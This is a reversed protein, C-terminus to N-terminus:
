LLFPQAFKGPFLAPGGPIDALVESVARLDDASLNALPVHLPDNADPIRYWPATGMAYPLYYRLNARRALRRLRRASIGLQEVPQFLDWTPVHWAWLRTFNLFSDTEDRYGPTRQGSHVSRACLVLTKQESRLRDILFDVADDGVAADATCAIAARDTEFLYCNWSTELSSPMEGAFPFATARVDGITMTEGHKLRTVKRRPGLVTQILTALDVEWRRDPRFDPVVIPVDEPLTMLVGLNCHDTDQHTIFVADLRPLQAPSLQPLQPGYPEFLLREGFSDSFCSKMEQETWRIHPRLFPDVCVSTRGTQLLVCAHGLWALRDAGGRSLGEPVIPASADAEEILQLDRLGRIAASLDVDGDGLRGSIEGESVGQALESVVRSVAPSERGAPIAPCREGRYRGDPFTIKLRDHDFAIRDRAGPIETIPARGNGDLRVLEAYPLQRRESELRAIADPPSHSRRLHRFREALYEIMGELYQVRRPDVQSNQPTLPACGISIEPVTFLSLRLQRGRRESRRSM